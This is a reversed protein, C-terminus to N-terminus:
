IKFSSSNETNKVPQPPSEPRNMEAKEHPVFVFGQAGDMFIAESHLGEFRNRQPNERPGQGEGM